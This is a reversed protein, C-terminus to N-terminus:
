GLGIIKEISEDFFRDPFSSKLTDYARNRSGRWSVLSVTKGSSLLRHLTLSYDIDGTVVFYNTVRPWDQEVESIQERLVVDDAGKRGKDVFAKTYLPEPINKIQYNL